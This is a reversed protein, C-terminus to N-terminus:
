ITMKSKKLTQHKEFKNQKRKPLITEKRRAIHKTMRKDGGTKHHPTCQQSAHTKNHLPHKKNSNQPGHNTPLKSRAHAHNQHTCPQHTPYILDLFEPPIVHTDANVQREQVPAGHRFHRRRLVVDMQHVVNKVSRLRPEHPLQM